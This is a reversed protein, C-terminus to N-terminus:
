RPRKTPRLWLSVHEPQLTEQVVLLMQDSLRGVDVEHRLQASFAQLTKAADYKRRYFRRDIFAQVQRRLPQFLAAIALTSAVIALDNTPGFLPHLLGQLLVVSAFYVLALVVTLSGYVLTRNILQDIDWLRYRLIGIGICVPLFLFPIILLFTEAFFLYLVRTLSLEDVVAIVAPVISYVFIGTAVGSLGFLVWKTQQREVRSSVHLYRYVQALIGIVMGGPVLAGFWLESVGDFDAVAFATFPSIVIWAVWALTMIRTWRPVFRGDPFLYTFIPFCGLGAGQLFRLPLEWMPTARALPDLLPSAVVGLLPFWLALFLVMRDDSKRWFLLTGAVIFALAFMATQTTQYVAFVDLSMGWHHLLRVDKAPLQIALPISPSRPMRMAQYNLPLAIVFSVLVLGVVALWAVRAAALWPGHLRAPVDNGARRDPASVAMTPRWKM